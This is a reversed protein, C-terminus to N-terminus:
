AAPPKRIGKIELFLEEIFKEDNLRASVHFSKEDALLALLDETGTVSEALKTVRDFDDANISRTLAEARLKVFDRFDSIEMQDYSAFGFARLNQKALKERILLKHIDYKPHTPEPLPEAPKGAPVLALCAGDKM